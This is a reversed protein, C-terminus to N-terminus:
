HIKGDMGGGGLFVGIFGEFKQNDEPKGMCNSSHLILITFTAEVLCWSPM